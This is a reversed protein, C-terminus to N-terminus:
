EVVAFLAAASSRAFPFVGAHIELTYDGVPMQPIELTRRFDRSEDADLPLEWRDEPPAFSGAAGTVTAWIQVTNPESLLNQVSSTAVITDGVHVATPELALSLDVSPPAGLLAAAAPLDIIGRGFVNDEGEAGKDRASVYLAGKLQEVSAGPDVQRLLAIAGAVHPCAMSTGSMTGYSSDKRISRVDVGPASVEPKITQHDCPSPGRSSFSAINENRDTAGVSFANLDSSIRDAPSRPGSQAENGAAFVVAAGMAECVDIVDWFVPSCPEFFGWSNSIVTPVDTYTMPNDDPDAAWQFARIVGAETGSGYRNFVKAAIWQAGFAVGITDATASDLGTMTGMTHSGHTPSLVDNDYPLPKGGLADFWAESAEVGPQFGRWRATIAPHLYRVGTDLNCVVSGVGTVGAAWMQPANIQRLGYETGGVSNPAVPAAAVPHILEVPLDADVVAVEPRSALALLAAPTAEVLLTNNIWFSEFDAISGPGSWTDIAHIMSRQTASSHTRLRLNVERAMTGRDHSGNARLRSALHRVSLNDRFSFIAVVDADTPTVELEAALEPSIREPTPTTTAAARDAAALLGCTALIALVSTSSRRFRVPTSM